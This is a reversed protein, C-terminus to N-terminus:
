LKNERCLDVEGEYGGEKFLRRKLIYPFYIQLSVFRFFKHSGLSFTQFYPYPIENSVELLARPRVGKLKSKPCFLM